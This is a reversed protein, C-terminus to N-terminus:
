GSGTPASAVEPVGRNHTHARARTRTRGYPTQLALNRSDEIQNSLHQISSLVKDERDLYDIQYGRDLM